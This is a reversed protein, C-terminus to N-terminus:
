IGLDSWDIIPIQAKKTVKIKKPKEHLELILERLKKAKPHISQGKRVLIKELVRYSAELVLIVERDKYLKEKFIGSMNNILIKEAKSIKNM